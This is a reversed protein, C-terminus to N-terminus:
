DIVTDDSNGIAPPLDDEDSLGMSRLADAHLLCMSRAYGYMREGDRTLEVGAQTRRLLTVSYTRELAQIHTSVTSQAYHLRRSAATISGARVVMVFTQLHTVDVNVVASGAPLSSTPHTRQIQGRVRNDGQYARSLGYRQRM